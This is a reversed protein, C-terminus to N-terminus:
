IFHGFYDIHNFPLLATHIEVYHLIKKWGCFEVAGFHTVMWFEIACQWMELVSRTPNEGQKDYRRLVGQGSNKDSNVLVIRFRM